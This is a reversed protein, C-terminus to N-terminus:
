GGVTGGVRGFSGGSLCENEGISVRGGRSLSVQCPTGGTIITDYCHDEDDPNGDETVSFVTTCYPLEAATDTSALVNDMSLCYQSCQSRIATIATNSTAGSSSQALSGALRSVGGTFLIIVTSLVLIALIIKVILNLSLGQGKRTM